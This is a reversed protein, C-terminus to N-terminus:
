SGVGQDKNEDRLVRRQIKGTPTKPLDERVVIERPVKFAAIRSKVHDRLEEVDLSQESQVSVFAVVREGSYEDSLGVVAAENVAPHEYIVDEVERPWVKYGSVNIQDKQRDVLYIWGHKDMVGVDGTHLWGDRITEETADPRNFYRPICQPGKLVLEGTSGLAVDEDTSDVIRADLGPLPVGISLTQTGPDMPARQGLPVGVVASATETMGYINHIYHGFREEFKTVTAPPVPAGGSFVTKVRNFDSKVAEKSDLLANYVTISGLLHQVGHKRLATLISSARIRGVFVLESRGVTLSTTATAVAGTIHFLPAVALVKDGPQMDLWQQNGYAVTLLNEHTGVAGKPPGTTGSTYTLLAPDKLGLDSVAATNPKEGKHRNLQAILGDSHNQFTLDNDDTTLLWPTEGELHMNNLDAASTESSILGLPRADNIITTLEHAGYMTNLILPVAGIKWLALMCYAFQPVNQLQVGVRDGREVGRSQFCSALSDTLTDVESVTQVLDDYRIARQEPAELVRQAWAAATTSAQLPYTDLDSSVFPPYLDTWPLQTANANM